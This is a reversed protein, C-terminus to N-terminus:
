RVPKVLRGRQRGSLRPPRAPPALKPPATTGSRGWRLLTGLATKTPTRGSCRKPRSPMGPALRILRGRNAPTPGVMATPTGVDWDTSSSTGRTEPCADGQHGDIRDGYGDGDSDRWQTPEHIFADGLDSWSDGDTDKCGWRDGGFSPGVSTGAISPCVDATNGRPNDGRGDGDTDHWQTPDEPWADGSGGPSALWISTPDSWGDGDGDPCGWRDFTSQGQTTRCGDPRYSSRWTQGDFYELNDGYDDDDTDHWQSPDDPFADAFGAPHAVVPRHPGFVRGQRRGPVGSPRLSQDLEPTWKRPRPNCAFMARSDPLITVTGTVTRTRANPPYLPFDDVQTAGYTQNDGWGDRDTDRGSPRTSPSITSASLEWRKITVGDTGTRISGNRQNSRSPTRVTTSPGTKMGTPTRTRTATLADLGTLPPVEESSRALM